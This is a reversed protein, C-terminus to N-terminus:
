GPAQGYPPTAPNLYPSKSLMYNFALTNATNGITQGQDMYASARANGANQYAGSISNAANAGATSTAQTAQQGAGAIGSLNNIYGQFDQTALGTAYRQGERVGAGSLLGGRAAASRDIAKQGQDLNFQFDPSNTFSSFDAKGTGKVTNGNADTTDLGYLGAITNLASAGTTRWPAQDSRTQAYQGAQTSISADSASKVAGAAKSAASSSAVAGIAAAAVLGIALPM